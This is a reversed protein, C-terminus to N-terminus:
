EIAGQKKEVRQKIQLCRQDSATYDRQAAMEVLRQLNAALVVEELLNRQMAIKHEQGVRWRHEAHQGITSRRDGVTTHGDADRLASIGLIGLEGLPGALPEIVRQPGAQDARACRLQQVGSFGGLCAGCKERDEVCIGIIGVGQVAYGIAIQRRSIGFRCLPM